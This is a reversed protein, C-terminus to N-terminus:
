GLTARQSETPPRVGRKLRLSEHARRDGDAALSPISEEQRAADDHWRYVAERPWPLSSDVHLMRGDGNIECLRHKLDGDRLMGAADILFAPKRAIAQELEERLSRRRCDEHFTPRRVIPRSLQLWEPVRPPQERGVIDPGV